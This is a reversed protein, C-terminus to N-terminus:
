KKNNQSLFDSVAKARVRFTEAISSEGMGELEQAQSNLLGQISDLSTIIQQKKAAIDNSSLNFQANSKAVQEAETFLTYAEMLRSEYNDVETDMGQAFAENAKDLKDNFDSMVQTKQMAMQAQAAEQRAANQKQKVIFTTTGLLLIVACAAAALMAKKKSSMSRKSGSMTELAVRMQAATQYRLDQKKECATSIINRLAKNNVKSLPMKSKIQKDLIEHRAGEFPTHGVICQYLLIGVAYIDTTQNQHQIDGLALEPAAYEPKGMFKGAVTLSKDSTTLTNMQKAIGFDILKIHGDATLMINSPDIDRHIYGADHLAMLGSLVSMVITRAFHEADNKYDQLMKVAFPVDEGTRDKTRGELVDSLSVGTLLESVVHYHKIVDGAATREQTEIFGLMEVLNDNRLQISAERRAREVAQPPLDDFMFKIAVPRTAGTREDVCVGEFVQGMGGVGIPQSSSDLQYCIGRNRESDGQLRIISM